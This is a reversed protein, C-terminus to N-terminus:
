DLPALTFLCRRLMTGFVRLLGSGTAEGAHSFSTLYFDAGWRRALLGDPLMRDGVVAVVDRPSIGLRAARTWPKNVEWIVGDGDVARSRSGNSVVLLRDLGCRLSAKRVEELRAAMMSASADDPVLTNDVDVIVVDFEGLRGILDVVSVHEPVEILRTRRWMTLLTDRLAAAESGPRM